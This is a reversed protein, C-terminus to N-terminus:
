VFDGSETSSDVDVTVTGTVVASTEVLVTCGVPPRAAAIAFGDTAVLAVRVRAIVPFVLRACLDFPWQTANALSLSATARTGAGTGNGRFFNFSNHEVRAGTVIPAAGAAGTNNWFVNGGQFISDVISFGPGAGTGRLEIGHAVGAVGACCEFGQMWTTHSLAAGEFVARSGDIYCNSFRNGGVTTYFAMVGLDVFDLPFWVHTGSVYNASGHVALGVKGSFVVTNLVSGARALPPPGRHVRRLARPRLSSKEREESVM